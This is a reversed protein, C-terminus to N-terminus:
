SEALPRKMFGAVQGYVPGELGALTHRIDIHKGQKSTWSGDSQQRAAHTPKGDRVYLALKQFGSELQSDTAPIFGLTAFAQFFAHLTEEAPVGRPWYHVAQPVPWWWADTVGVAWAICNYRPTAPSTEDYGEEILHPFATNLSM